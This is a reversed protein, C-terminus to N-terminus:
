LAEVKTITTDEGIFTIRYKKELERLDYVNYYFTDFWKEEKPESSPLFSKVSGNMNPLYGWVVYADECVRLLEDIFAYGDEQRYHLLVDKIYGSKFQKDKFPMKRADALTLCEEPVGWKKAAEIFSPTVDVGMYGKDKLGEYDICNGCGIDLVPGELHLYLWKRDKKTLEFDNRLFQDAQDAYAYQWHEAYNEEKALNAARIWHGWMKAVDQIFSTRFTLKTPCAEHTPVDRHVWFAVRDNVRILQKPKGCGRCTIEVPLDPLKADYISRM